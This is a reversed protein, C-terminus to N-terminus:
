ARTPALLKALPAPLAVTALEARDVWRGAGLLADAPRRALRARRPHLLWDFHTLAHQVTPRAQPETGLAKATALLAAEDDYLPLSWLGAWVGSAPRQALWLPRAMRAVAVLERAASRITRRTKVPYREADGGRRGCVARAGPMLPLQPARPGCLTAGLDM